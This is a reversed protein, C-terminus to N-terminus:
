NMNFGFSKNKSLFIINNMQSVTFPDKKQALFPNKSLIKAMEM